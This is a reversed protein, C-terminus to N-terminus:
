AGVGSIVGDVHHARLRAPLEALVAEEDPGHTRGFTAHGVIRLSPERQVLHGRLEAFLEEGRFGHNWLEGLVRGDLSPLRPAPDIPAGVQPGIPAVVDYTPEM